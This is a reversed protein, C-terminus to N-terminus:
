RDASAVDVGTAGIGLPLLMLAGALITTPEPIPALTAGLAQFNDQELGTGAGITTVDTQIYLLYSADGKGLFQGTPTTFTAAGGPTDGTYNFNQVGAVGFAPGGFFASTAATGTSVIVASPFTTFTGISISDPAGVANVIQFVFTLGAANFGSLVWTSVTGDIAGGPLPATQILNQGTLSQAITVAGQSVPASVAIAAVAAAITLQKTYKKM